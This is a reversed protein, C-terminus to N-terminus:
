GAARFQGLGVGVGGASEDLAAAAAEDLGPLLHGYPELTTRISSHGMREQIVKPHLGERILLAAHSHGLDHFTCPQGVTAAVAPNWM